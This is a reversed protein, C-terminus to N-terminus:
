PPTVRRLHILPYPFGDADTDSRGTEVFGRRGYWARAAPNQENVQLTLIPARVDDLLASGVGRGHAPPDVFLMDIEGGRAALFGLPEDDPGAAVRVAARPLEDRLRAEFGDVATTTLFDHTAEVARRWLGVLAELDDPVADRIHM